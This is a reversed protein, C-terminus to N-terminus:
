SARRRRLWALAAMTSFFVMPMSGSDDDDDLLAALEADSAGGGGGAAKVTVDFVETTSLSPTGDDSVVVTVRFDGAASLEGSISGENYDIGAPLGSVSVVSITDDEADEFADAVPIPGVETGVKGSLQSGINVALTPATNVAPDLYEVAGLDASTDAAAPAVGRQDEGNPRAQGEGADVVYSMASSPAHTLTPGGNDALAGLEPDVEAPAGTITTAGEGYDIQGQTMVTGFIDVSMPDTGGNIGGASALSGGNFAAEYDNSSAFVSNTLTAETSTSYPTANKPAFHVQATDVGAGANDVFTSHTVDLSGIGEFVIPARAQTSTNGSFTSNLVEASNGGSYYGSFDDINVAAFPGSNGSVTTNRITMSASGEYPQLNVELGSASGESDSTSNNSITSDVITLDSSYGVDVELGGTGNASSNDEITTRSLTMSGEYFFVDMGGAGRDASNGSILTDSLDVDFIGSVNIAGDSGASTNGRFLSGEISLSGGSGQVNLAGATGESADTAQNGVFSSSSISVSESGENSIHVAGSSYASNGRFASGRIYLDAGSSRVAGGRGYTTSNNAFVTGYIETSGGYRVRLGGPGGLATNGSVESAEIDVNSENAYIAGPGESDTTNGSIQSGSIFLGEGLYRATVPAETSTNGTIATNNISVYVINRAEIAGEGETGINDAFVSDNVTLSGGGESRVRVLASEHSSGTVNVDNLVIEGAYSDVLGRDLAVVSVGELTFDSGEQVEFLEGEGTTGVITLLESGPGTITLRGSSDDVDTLQMNNVDIVGTTDLVITDPGENSNALGIAFDLSGPGFANNTTVTFTQASATGSAMGIAAALAGLALNNHNDSPPM